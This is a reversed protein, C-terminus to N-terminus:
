DNSTNYEYNLTKNKGIFESLNSAGNDKIGHVLDNESALFLIIKWIDDTNTFPTGSCIWKYKSQLSFLQKEIIINKKYNKSSLVEHGEDLIIREWKIHNLLLDTPYSKKKLFLLQIMKIKSQVKEKEKLPLIKM